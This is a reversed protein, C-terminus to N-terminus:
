LISIRLYAIQTMFYVSFNGSFDSLGIRKSLSFLFNMTPKLHKEFFRSDSLRHFSRQLVKMFGLDMIDNVISMANNSLASPVLVDKVLGEEGNPFLRTTYHIASNLLPGLNYEYLLSTNKENVLKFAVTKLLLPLGDTFASKEL